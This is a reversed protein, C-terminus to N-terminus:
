QYTRIDDTLKYNKLVVTHNLYHGSKVSIQCYLDKVTYIGRQTERLTFIANSRPVLKSNGNEFCVEQYILTVWAPMWLVNCKSETTDAVYLFLSAIFIEKFSCSIVIPM